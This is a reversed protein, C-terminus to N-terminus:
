FSASPNNPWWIALVCSPDKKSLNYTNLVKHYCKPHDGVAWVKGSRPKEDDGLKQEMLMAEAGSFIYGYLNDMNNYGGFVIGNGVITGAGSNEFRVFWVGTSKGAKKVDTKPINVGPVVQGGSLGGIYHGDIMDALVLHEAVRTDERRAPIDDVYGNGDGDATEGPWYRTAIHLDGPLYNYYDQFTIISSKLEEIQKLASRLRSEIIMERGFLIGGIMAGVIVLVVALEVLTFGKDNECKKM